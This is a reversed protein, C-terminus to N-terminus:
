GSRQDNGRSSGRGRCSGRRSSNRRRARQGGALGSAVRVVAATNRDSGINVAGTSLAVARGVKFAGDVDDAAVNVAEIAVVIPNGAFALICCSGPRGSWATIRLM